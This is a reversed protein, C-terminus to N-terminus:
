GCVITRRDTIIMDLQEDGEHLPLADFEQEDYCVGVALLDRSTRLARLTRDYFGGGYGLRNGVEDFGLLPVGIIDPEVVPANVMPECIGFKAPVLLANPLWARFKLLGDSGNLVPLATVVKRSALEEFLDRVDIEERIPWYL